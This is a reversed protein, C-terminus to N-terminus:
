NETVKSRNTIGNRVEGFYYNVGSGWGVRRIVNTNLMHNVTSRWPHSRAKLRSRITQARHVGQTIADIVGDYISQSFAPPTGDVSEDENLSQEIHRKLDAFEEIKRFAQRGFKDSNKTPLGVLHYM